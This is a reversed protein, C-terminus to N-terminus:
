APSGDVVRQFQENRAVQDGFVLKTFVHGLKFFRITILLVIVNNAYLAALHDLKAIRADVLDLGHDAVEQLEIDLMMRQVQVSYALVTLLLAFIGAGNGSGAGPYGHPM